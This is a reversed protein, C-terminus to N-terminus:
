QTTQVIVQQPPFSVVRLEDAHEILDPRLPQAMQILIVQVGERRAFKMAPVIDTDGTVLIIRDVIGKSSLWAIDLGIKLDVEKQDIAPEFDDDRLPRQKKSLDEKAKFTLQWGRFALRGHRYAVYDKLALTDLLSKQRRCTATASFDTLVGSLPHRVTTELPPCDYYYIRFLEEEKKNLCGRAFGVIDDALPHRKGLMKYLNYLVHGGDLIVATRKM